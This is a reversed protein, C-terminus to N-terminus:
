IRARARCMRKAGDACRRTPRTAGSQTWSKGLSARAERAIAAPPASAADGLCVALAGKETKTRTLKGQTELDALLESLSRKGFDRWSEEPSIKLLLGGLSATTIYHSGPKLNRAVTQVVFDLYDQYTM